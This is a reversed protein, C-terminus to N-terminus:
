NDPHLGLDISCSALDDAANAEWKQRVDDRDDMGRQAATQYDMSASVLADLYCSFAAADADLYSVLADPDFTQRASDFDDVRQEFADYATAYEKKVLQTTQATAFQDSATLTDGFVANFEDFADLEAQLQDAKASVQSVTLGDFSATAATTHTQATGFATKADSLSTQFASAKTSATSHDAAYLADLAGRLDRLTTM